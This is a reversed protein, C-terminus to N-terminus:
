WRLGVAETYLGDVLDPTIQADEPRFLHPLPLAKRVSFRPLPGRIDRGDVRLGMTALVRLFAGAVRSPHRWFLDWDSAYLVHALKWRAKWASCAAIVHCSRKGEILLAQAARTGKMDEFRARGSEDLGDRILEPRTEVRVGIRPVLDPVGSVLPVLVQEKELTRFGLGAFIESAAASPSLNV